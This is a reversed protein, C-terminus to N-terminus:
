EEEEEEVPNMWAKLPEVANFIAQMALAVEPVEAVATWLDDSSITVTEEDRIEGTVGNFPSMSLHVEGETTSEARFTVEKLWLHPYTKEPVAPVEPVTITEDNNIAM